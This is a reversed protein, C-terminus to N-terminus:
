QSGLNDLISLLPRSIAVMILQQLLLLALGCWLALDARGRGLLFYFGLAALGATFGAPVAPKLLLQRTLWPMKDVGGEVIADFAANWQPLVIFLERLTLASIALLLIAVAPRLQPLREPSTTM